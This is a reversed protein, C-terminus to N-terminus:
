IHRQGIKSINIADMSFYNLRLDNRAPLMVSYDVYIHKM